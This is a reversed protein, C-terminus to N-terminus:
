AGEGRGADAAATGLPAEVEAGPGRGPAADGGRLAEATRALLQLFDRRMADIALRVAVVEAEAEAVQARWHARLAEADDLAEERIRGAEEEAAVLRQAIAAQRGEALALADVKAALDERLRASEARAAAHQAREEQLERRLGALDDELHVLLERVARPALGFLARRLGHM